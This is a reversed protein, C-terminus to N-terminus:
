RLFPVDVVLIHLIIKAIVRRENVFRGEPLLSKEPSEWIQMWWLDTLARSTNILVSLSVRLMMKSWYNRLTRIVKLDTQSAPESFHAGVNCLVELFHHPV